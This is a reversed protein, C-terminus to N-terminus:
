PALATKLLARAEELGPYPQPPNIAQQLQVAADAKRGAKLYIAGIHFAVDPPIAPASVLRDALVLAESYRGQRYYVWALTDLAAANNSGLFREAANAARDLANKNNYSYDAILLAMNNAAVDLMPNNTLLRDYLDIAQDIRGMEKSISALELPLRIDGPIIEIGQRLIDAATELHKGQKEMRARNLFPEARKDQGAIAQDFYFAAQQSDGETLYIEGLVTIAFTTPAPIAEIFAKAEDLKKTENCISVFSTLALEGLPSDLSTQLVQKYRSLAESSKGTAQLIQGELFAVILGQDPLRALADVAKQAADYDAHALHLRAQTEWTVPFAPDISAAEELLDFARATDGNAETIQALRVRAGPDLPYLKVLTNATDLALNLYGQRMLTEALLPMAQPDNARERLIARLDTVASQLAGDQLALSARLLLANRNGPAKELVAEILHDALARNGHSVNIQALLARANLGAVETKRQAVIEELIATARDSLGNRLLVESIWFYPAIEDPAAAIFARGEREATDLDKHDALLFVLMRKFDLDDPHAAIAQRLVQEAADFREQTMLTDALDFWFPREEPHAALITRLTAEVAPADDLSRLVEFKFTLLKMNGPQRTLADDLTAMAKGTQEKRVWVTARVAIAAVNDPELALARTAAADAGALDHRKLLLAGRLAHAQPNDPEAAFVTALRREGDDLNDTLINIEALKLLAPLHGPDQQEAGIFSQFAGRLNGTREELLGIRYRVEADTPMLRLANRYEIRAKDIEGSQFYDNGRRLYKREKAAPDDCGSVLLGALVAALIM